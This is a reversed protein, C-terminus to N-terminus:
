CTSVIKDIMCPMAYFIRDHALFRKPVFDLMEHGFGCTIVHENLANAWKERDGSPTVSIAAICNLNNMLDLFCEPSIEVGNRIQLYRLTGGIEKSLSVLGEESLNPLSSIFLKEMCKCKSLNKVINDSCITRNKSGKINLYKLKRFSGLVDCNQLLTADITLYMCNKFLELFEESFLEAMGENFFNLYTISNWVLGSEFLLSICKCFKSVSHYLEPIPIFTLIKCLLEPPLHCLNTYGTFSFAFVFAFITAGM